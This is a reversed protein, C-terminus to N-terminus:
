YKYHEAKYPGKQPVNIYDAQEDTLVTLVGGFGSVMGAAVEEDLKKPLVEVTIRAPVPDDAFKAKYLHLAHPVGGHNDVALTECRLLQAFIPQGKHRVFAFFREANDFVCQLFFNKAIDEYTM